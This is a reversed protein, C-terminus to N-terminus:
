LTGPQMPTPSVMLPAATAPKSPMSGLRSSWFAWAPMFFGVLAGISPLDLSCPDFPTGAARAALAVAQAASYLYYVLCAVGSTSTALIGQSPHPHNAASVAPPIVVPALPPLQMIGPPPVPLPTPAPIPPQSATAITADQPNSAETTLPFHWLHPGTEDRCGSLIPGGDPHDVTVLTRTVFITCDQNAFLGLGILTHPFNLMVHGLLAAPPLSTASSLTVIAVLREPCGNAVRVGVAPTQPNYNAVPADPAFYFGSSSSNVIGTHHTPLTPPPNPVFETV